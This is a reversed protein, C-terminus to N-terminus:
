GFFNVMLVEDKELLIIGITRSIEDERCDFM